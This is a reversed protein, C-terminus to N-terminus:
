IIYSYTYTRVNWQRTKFLFPNPRNRKKLGCSQLKSSLLLYFVDSWQNHKGVTQRSWILKSQNVSMIISDLWFMFVFGRPPTGRICFNLEGGGRGPPLSDLAVLPERKKLRYYTMIYILMLSWVVCPTFYFWSLWFRQVSKDSGLSQWSWMEAVCCVTSQTRTVYSWNRCM